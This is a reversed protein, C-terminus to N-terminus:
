KLLKELKWIQKQHWGMTERLELERIINLQEDTIENDCSYCDLCWHTNGDFIQVGFPEHGDGCHECFPLEVYEIKDGNIETM